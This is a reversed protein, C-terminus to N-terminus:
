QTLKSKIKEFFSYPIGLQIGTYYLITKFGPNLLLDVGLWKKATSYQSKYLNSASNHITKRIKKKVLRGANKYYRFNITLVSDLSRPNTVLSNSMSNKHVRYKATNGPMYIVKYKETLKLWMYYDQVGVTEDFGGAKRVLDTRVLASPLPIFNFDFLTDHIEGSPMSNKDYGIRQLYGNDIIQGNDNILLVDSYVLAADQAGELLKVQKEIKDPLILDDADLFQIYKGSANQLLQNCIKTLGVNTNNKIFRIKIDGSYVTIWNEIVQTSNDTSLDDIIILEIGTYSQVVVSELTQLIFHAYNFNPIGITVLPVRTSM